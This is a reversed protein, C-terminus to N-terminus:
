ASVGAATRTEPRSRGPSTAVPVTFRIASGRLDGAPADTPPSEAWIRGGHAEIIGKCIALGLGTGAIGRARAIRGRHFREFIATLEEAGIGLGQDVVSVTVDDGTRVASVTVTGGDPSYKLANDVLDRLVQEIRRPDGLIPPLMAPVSHIVRHEAGPVSVRDVAGHVLPGLRIPRPSVSLTGSGIKTMDLLDDVLRELDKSSDAIVSLFRRTTARDDPADPLLLSTAYGMIFGLPTRLEHSVTALFEEKMREVETEASVDRLVHVTGASAGERDSIPSRTTAVTVESGDRRRLTMRETRPDVVASAATGPLSREEVVEGFPRGLADAAPWKALAAAAPNFATIRDTTDTTVVADAMSTVIGEYRSKQVALESLATRLKERMDDFAHALERVEGDGRLPVPTVLDGRAIQRSAAALALVPRSVSRTTVWVLLLAVLMSAGGLLITQDEWRAADASLEADSGGLALGWPVTRLSIFAMDHRQGQDAPDQPGVPESLGVGSTHHALHPDYLDPHEGSRLVDAPDTSAIVRDSQDVLEAHGTHALGRASAVLDGIVGEAPSFVLALVATRSGQSSVPVALIVLARGDVRIVGSAYRGGSALPDLIRPDVAVVDGEASQTGPWVVTRDPTILITHGVLPGLGGITGALVLRQTAPERSTSGLMAAVQELREFQLDIESDIVSATSTAINAWGAVTRQKADEAIARGLAGFLVFLVLLGLFVLSGIKWRLPLRAAREGFTRM